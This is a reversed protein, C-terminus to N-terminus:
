ERFHAAQIGHRRLLRHLTEREVGAEDAARSVNGGTRQMLASLYERGAANQARELAERWTGPRTSPAGVHLEPPLDLVGISEGDSVVAAHELAHKLERVNGPWPARELAALADADLRRAPTGFKAAALKLFRAALLAIDEVRERLPPIRLILVKLRYFLDARFTGKEIMAELDGHTAAVLRVDVRRAQTEGIRRVEGEELARNLKVQLALPLDAIEDLFLTGGGAAEFLGQRDGVAGSYSGRAAGFLEAELLAEPIAGCNVAVFPGKGYLRHLERAVVEKGVGSEGLLLVSVPLPGVREIRRRIELIATSSGLIGTERDALLSELEAARAVLAHREAARAVIRRVDEVEFPKTIYDYAGQKLATVADAIDAYATMLVVEPPRPRRRAFALVEHGSVGPMRVDTLVVAYGRQALLGKAQEGSAAEDVAFDVSLTRVLMARLNERDEVVLVRPSM